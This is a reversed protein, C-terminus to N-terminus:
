LITKIIPIKKTRCYNDNGDCIGCEGFYDHQNDPSVIGSIMLFVPVSFKSLFFIFVSVCWTKGGPVYDWFVYSMTHNVIVFFCAIIRMLELYIKKNKM